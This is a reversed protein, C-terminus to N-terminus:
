AKALARLEDLNVRTDRCWDQYVDGNPTMTFDFTKKLCSEWSKPFAEKSIYIKFSVSYKRKVFRKLIYGGTSCITRKQEFGQELLVTFVDDFVKPSVYLDKYGITANNGMSADLQLTSIIVNSTKLEFSKAIYEIIKETSDLGGKVCVPTFVLKPFGHGFRMNASVDDMSMIETSSSPNLISRNVEDSIAHRSVYMSIGNSSLQSFIDPKMSGNTVVVLNDFNEAITMIDDIYLSPEGGGIFITDLYPEMLKLNALVRGFNRENCSECFSVNRCFSCSCNCKMGLELYLLNKFSISGCQKRGSKLDKWSDLSLDSLEISKVNNLDLDFLSTPYTTLGGLPLNVQVKGFHCDRFHIISLVRPSLDELIIDPYTKDKIIGDFFNFRDVVKFDKCLLEYVQTISGDDFEALIDECQKVLDSMQSLTLFTSVDRLSQQIISFLKYGSIHIFRNARLFELSVSCDDWYSEPLDGYSEDLLVPNRGLGDATRRQFDIKVGTNRFNAGCININTWANTAIYSLDVNEFNCGEVSRHGYDNAQLENPRFNIGTNSFNTNHFVAGEWFEPPFRSLDVGSLDMDTFDDISREFWVLKRSMSKVDSIRKM